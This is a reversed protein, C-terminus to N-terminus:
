LRKRLMGFVGRIIEREVTELPDPSRRRRPVRPARPQPEVDIREQENLRRALVEAASERELRTGYKAALTGAAIADAPGMRSHPANVKTHVVPTPVGREDLVTVAAEGIGLAPLLAELDLGPTTPFTSVAAKLAKADQPTYARLAHQVRSGLQALVSPAVDGPAQTVFWIGVGKSRILRVTREIATVFAKTADSFLLHAEDLFVVLKPMPLDGAEPLSEFLEAVLWMLATSWLEPHEQVAPLEVCSITGRGDPAPRMLDAVDFQPEGFFETGGGTELGVLSRLLVGVTARALGGIGELDAKGEKSGLYTLLARLDALDVLGLGRQDAYHFVLQLSQEQTENAGLVKALLQPGFDSVAARVPTGPGIGGLSLFEVPFATALGSVDGKLDAVLVPVGAASLGEAMVQMTVTKGTGTAGAILGHRTLRNFPVSVAAGGAVGRGLELAM